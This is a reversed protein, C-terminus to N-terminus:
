LSEGKSIIVSCGICKAGAEKSGCLNAMKYFNKWLELDTIRLYNQHQIYLLIM